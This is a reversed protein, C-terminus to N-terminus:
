RHSENKACSRASLETHRRAGESFQRTTAYCAHVTIRATIEISSIWLYSTIDQHNLYAKTAPRLSCRALGNPSRFTDGRDLRVLLRLANMQTRCSRREPITEPFPTETRPPPTLHDRRDFEANQQM